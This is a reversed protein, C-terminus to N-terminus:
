RDSSRSGVLDFAARTQALIQELRLIVGARELEHELGLIVKHRELFAPIHDRARDAQARLVCVQEFLAQAHEGTQRQVVAGPLLRILDHM